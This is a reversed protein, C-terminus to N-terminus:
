IQLGREYKAQRLVHNETDGDKWLELFDDYAARSKAKDGDFAYARALGLHALSGLAFNIVVGPHDLIKQFQAAAEKGQHLQLYAEGRLYTTYMAGFDLPFSLSLDMPEVPQLIRIAEAPNKSSLEIAARTAPLWYRQLLTNQPFEKDLETVLKSAAAVDGSRAWALAIYARVDRGPATALAGSAYRRAADPNGFEAEIWAAKAQWAAAMEANDSKKASLVARDFYSTASKLRGFYAEADGKSNLLWDGDGPHSEGWLLQEQMAATDRRLFAEQFIPLRIVFADPSYHLAASTIKRVEERHDLALQIQALTGAFESSAPELKFGADAKQLADDLQGLMNYCFGQNNLPPGERSYDRAWLDYARIAEDLQGIGNLYYSGAIRFREHASVRDRLEYAKRAAEFARTDQGINSYSTALGSYAVAFNPDIEVARQLYPLAALDGQRNTIRRGISYSKLAELSPTTAEDVPTSFKQISALSEGLKERMRSAAQDLAALVKGRGTARSQEAVIVDGSVCNLAQLGILYESELASITGALMAKSGVRQCLERAPEGTVREEGSRGMLLLTSTVKRDSIINLRPSQELDFILAQKLADDFVTDGTKNIFDTIVITDKESIVQRGSVFWISAAIALVLVVGGGSALLWVRTRRFSHVASISKELPLEATVPPAAPAHVAIEGTASRLRLEATFRYGRRPVTAIPGEGEFDPNLLKRLTSVNNAISGEEVFADPWVQQMLQDKTVVRGAEKVLILLTDFVKPALPVFEGSRFLSRSSVELRYIGFEYFDEMGVPATESPSTSSPDQAM